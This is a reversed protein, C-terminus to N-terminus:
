WSPRPRSWRSAERRAQASSFAPLPRRSRPISRVIAQVHGAVLSAAIVPGEHSSNASSASERTRAAPTSYASIRSSSEVVRVITPSSRRMACIRSDVSRPNPMRTSWRPAQPNARTGDQGEFFHWPDGVKRHFNRLSRSRKRDRLHVERGLRHMSVPNDCGAAQIGKGNREFLLRRQQQVGHVDNLPLRADDPAM